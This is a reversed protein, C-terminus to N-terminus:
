DIKTMKLMVNWDNLAKFEIPPDHNGPVYYFWTQIEKLKEISKEFLIEAESHSKSEDFLDERPITLFDGSVLM